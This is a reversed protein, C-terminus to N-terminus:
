NIFSVLIYRTGSTVPLGEHYATLRGAHVTCTGPMKNRLIINQRIFRCGGGDYDVGNGRNLAINVTYSSSDHHPKLEKQNGFEYKVVFSININKTKYSNYLVGVVPAIYSFVIETWQKEFGIEFLQIDVTPVNEYYGAGLRPDNHEDNGKSWKGYAETREIIEKCFADSFLMFNYIDACLEDHPMNYLNNKHQFYTPHLYKMEWEVKRDFLDYVTLDGNANGSAGINNNVLLLPARYLSLLEDTTAIYGYKKINSVYMFIGKKRLNYCMRMDIDMDVNKMFLKPVKELVERKILYTGMIYPINWCGKRGNNIIEIYDFSRKYYGNEDLDGWFNTWTENGKRLMPGVVGKDLKVLDALVDGDTIVNDDGVFFYYECDSLLFNAVSNHYMDTDTDNNNKNIIEVFMKERTYNLLELMTVKKKNNSDFGFSVYIKPMLQMPIPTHNVKTVIGHGYYENWGNGTYNEIRNLEITAHMTNSYLICPSTKTSSNTIKSKAQNIVLTNNNLVEQFINCTNDTTYNSSHIILSSLDSLESNQFSILNYIESAVAIFFKKNSSKYNKNVYIKNNQPIKEIIERPSAIPLINCSDSTNATIVLLITSSLKDQSWSKLENLLYYTHTKEKSAITINPLGYLKCYKDFRIYSDHTTPGIYITIFQKNDFKYFNTQQTYPESHYTESENFATSKLKLLNPSFAYCLVKEYQEYYKEFGFIKCGHMAPLFEDVPILNDLFKANILKKAGNYTLLYACAWYSKKISKLYPLIFTENEADLPKRHLYLMDYPIRCNIHCQTTLDHFNDLFIVDDELILVKCDASLKKAEVLDVIDKWILYHSLACGVEGNTMSKGSNPDFWNPIQFKYDALASNGDIANFFCHHLDINKEALRLFEQEMHKRKDQRRELNIVYTKTIM